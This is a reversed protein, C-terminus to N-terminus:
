VDILMWRGSFVSLLGPSTFVFDSLRDLFMYDVNLIGLVYQVLFVAAVIGVVIGATKPTSAGIAFFLTYAVAAAFLFRLVLAFPYAHLGPPMAGAVAVISAGLLLAVAPPILFLAGALLRMGAYRARSIPLSLAYVHRGRQDHGWAALAVILGLGASLFAYGVGWSQMAMVFQSPTPEFRAFQYSGIPLAFAVLTALLVLGRTWKWQTILIARFM